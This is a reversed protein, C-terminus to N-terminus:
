GEAEAEMRAIIRAFEEVPDLNDLAEIVRSYDLALYEHVLVNRFGPLKALVRATAPPIEPIAAMNQVAQTYDQYRLYRRASIESAIDVVAQCVVQLSHLVDNRLSLDESLSEPDTVRPRIERLHDLERRLRSLRDILPSM